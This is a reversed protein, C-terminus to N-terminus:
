TQAAMNVKHFLKKWAHLTAMFDVAVSYVMSKHGVVEKGQCRLQWYKDIDHVSLLTNLTLM